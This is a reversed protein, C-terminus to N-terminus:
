KQALFFVTIEPNSKELDKDNAVYPFNEVLYRTQPHTVSFDEGKISVNVRKDNRGWARVATKLRGCGRETAGCGHIIKVVREGIVFASAFEYELIRLAAKIDPMGGRIDIEYIKNDM